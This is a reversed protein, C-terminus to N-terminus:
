GTLSAVLRSLESLSVFVRGVMAGKRKGQNVITIGDSVPTTRRLKLTTELWERQQGENRIAAGEFVQRIHFTTLNSPKVKRSDGQENVVVVPEDNVMATQLRMPLKAVAAGLKPEMNLIVEPLVEGGFLRALVRAKTRTIFSVDDGAELMAHYIAAQWLLQERQSRGALQYADARKQPTDLLSIELMIEKLTKM